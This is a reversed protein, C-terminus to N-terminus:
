HWWSGEFGRVVRRLRYRSVEIRYAVDRNSRDRMMCRGLGTSSRCVRLFSTLFAAGRRPWRLAIGPRTGAARGRYCADMVRAGSTVLDFPTSAERMCYCCCSRPMWATDVRGLRAGPRLFWDCSRGPVGPVGSAVALYPDGRHGARGRRTLVVPVRCGRGFRLDWPLSGAYAGPRDPARGFGPRGRARCGRRCSITFRAPATERWSSM